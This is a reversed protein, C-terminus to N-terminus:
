RVHEGPAVFHPRVWTEWISIEIVGDSLLKRVSSELSDPSSLLMELANLCDSQIPFLKVLNSSMNTSHRSECHLLSDVFQLANALYLRSFHFQLIFRRDWVIYPSHEVGLM